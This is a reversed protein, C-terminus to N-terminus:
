PVYNSVISQVLSAILASITFDSEWIGGDEKNRLVDFCM